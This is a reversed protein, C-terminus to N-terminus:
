KLNNKILCTNYARSGVAALYSKAKDENQKLKESQEPTPNTVFEVKVGKWAHNKAKLFCIAKQSLKPLQQVDVSRTFEVIDKDSSYGSLGTWSIFNKGDKIDSTLVGVELYTSTKAKCWEGNKPNKTSSVLRTGKNNTELWFRKSTKKFGWPYNDVEVSNEFSDKNYIYNIMNKREKTSKNFM